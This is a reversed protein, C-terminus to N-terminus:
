VISKLSLLELEDAANEIQDSVEGLMALLQAIEQKEALSIESLFVQSALAREQVDITSELKGVKSVHARLDEVKGKPKFFARMAKYFEAFCTETLELISAFEAQYTGLTEPKRINVFHLCEEIRNAVDDVMSLLLYIDGRITPLYAGSYLLERIDRLLQDATSELNNVSTTYETLRESDNAAYAKIAAVMIALSEGTTEAHRLALEVVQKEKKFILM